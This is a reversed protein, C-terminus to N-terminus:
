LAPRGSVRKAGGGALLTGGRAGGPRNGDRKEDLYFSEPDVEGGFWKIREKDIRVRGSRLTQGEAYNLFYRVSM